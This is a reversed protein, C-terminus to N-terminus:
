KFEAERGALDEFQISHNERLSNKFALAAKISQRRDNHVFLYVAKREFASRAVQEAKVLLMGTQGVPLLSLLNGDIIERERVTVILLVIAVVSCLCWLLTLARHLKRNKALNLINKIM